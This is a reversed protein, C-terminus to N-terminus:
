LLICFFRPKGPNLFKAYGTRKYINFSPKPNLKLQLLPVLPLLCLEIPNFYCSIISTLELIVFIYLSDTLFTNPQNLLVMTAMIICFYVIMVLQNERTLTLSQLSEILKYTAYVHLM